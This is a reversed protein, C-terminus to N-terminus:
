YTLLNAVALSWLSLACDYSQKWEYIQFIVFSSEPVSIWKLIQTIWHFNNYKHNCIKIPFSLSILGPHEKSPIISFSSSRSNTISLSAQRATIWPTAFLQVRSLSQVSSFSILSLSKCLLPFWTCVVANSWNLETWNLTELLSELTKELVVTWFCWNKQCEANKVAWSEWGYM